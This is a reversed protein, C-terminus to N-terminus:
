GKSNECQGTIVNLKIWENINRLGFTSWQGDEFLYLFDACMKAKGTRRFDEASNFEVAPNLKEGRDRHYAVCDDIGEKLESIDGLKLLAEVQEPQTYWLGLIAGARAVYGDFHLYIAKVSGDPQKMGIACPTGM